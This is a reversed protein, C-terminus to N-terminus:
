LSDGRVHVDRICFLAGSDCVQRHLSMATRLKCYGSSLVRIADEPNLGFIETIAGQLVSVAVPRQWSRGTVAAAGSIEFASPMSCDIPEPDFAETKCRGLSRQVKPAFWHM